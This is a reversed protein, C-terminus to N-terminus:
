LLFSLFNRDSAGEYKWRHGKFLGFDGLLQKVEKCLCGGTKEGYVSITETRNWSMLTILSIRYIEICEQKMENWIKKNLALRLRRASAVQSETSYGQLPHLLAAPAKCYKYHKNQYCIHQPYFVKRLHPFHTLNGHSHFSISSSTYM